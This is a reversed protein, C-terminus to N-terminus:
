PQPIPPREGDGSVRWHWLPVAEEEGDACDTAPGSRRASARVPPRPPVLLDM